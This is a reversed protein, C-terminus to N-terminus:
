VHSLMSSLRGSGLFLLGRFISFDPQKRRYDKRRGVAEGDWVTALKGLGEEGGGLGEVHWGGRAKREENM